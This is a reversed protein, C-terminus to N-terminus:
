RRMGHPGGRGERSEHHSEIADEIADAQAQTLTGDAVLAALAAARAAERAAHRDARTAARQDDRRSHVADKVADAQAQTLTGDAVLSTLPGGRSGEGRPGSGNDHAYAATGGFALAAATLAAAAGIGIRRSTSM